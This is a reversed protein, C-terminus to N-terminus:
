NSTCPQKKNSGTSREAQALRGILADSTIQEHVPLSLAAEYAKAMGYLKLEHLQDLTSQVNM